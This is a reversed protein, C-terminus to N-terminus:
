RSKAQAVYQRIQNAIQPNTRSAQGIQNYKSVSLGKERVAEVMQKQAQNQIAPKQDAPAKQIRSQWNTGIREVAVSAKAYKKLDTKNFSQAAAPPQQQRAAPPQQQQPPPASTQAAAGMACCTSVALAAVLTPFRRITM